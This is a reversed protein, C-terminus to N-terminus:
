SDGTNPQGLFDKLDADVIWESGAEIEKWVKRLADKPSRGVRYGFNAEDFVADFIPELRNQLAQECV